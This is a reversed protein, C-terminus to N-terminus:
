ATVKEVEPRGVPVVAEKEEAEQLGVQEEVSVILVLPEVGTPLKVTVTVAVPPPTVLVVLKVIVTFAGVGANLKEIVLPPLTDTVWPCDTVLVTLAVRLEPKECATEKEVEPRGAPAV